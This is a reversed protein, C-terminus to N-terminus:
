RAKTHCPNEAETEYNDVDVITALNLCIHERHGFAISWSAALARFWTLM